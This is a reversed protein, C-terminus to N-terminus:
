AGSSTAPLPRPDTAIRNGGIADRLCAEFREALKEMDHHTEVYRRGRLGAEWREDPSMALLTKIADVMAAPNEAPVSLGADADAVPNSPADVAILTPRAAAMYDFLKNPSMGWRYLGGGHLPLVFADAEVIVDKVKQKPVPDEFLVMAELGAAQAQRVLEPKLPGDGVLRFRVKDAYGEAKLLVATDLM